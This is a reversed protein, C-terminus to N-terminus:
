AFAAKNAEVWEGFQMPEAGKYRRLNKVAAEYREKQAYPGHGEQSAKFGNVLSDLAPPPLHGLKTRFQEENLEKIKIERGLRQSMINFAERQTFLQPGCLDVTRLENVPKRLEPEALIAGCVTGIDSPSLFDFSIDPTFLEVFDQKIDELYWFVNSNFYM